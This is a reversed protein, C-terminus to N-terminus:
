QKNKNRIYEEYRKQMLIQRNRYALIGYNILDKAADPKKKINQLLDEERQKTFARAKDVMSSLNKERLLTNGYPEIFNIIDRNGFPNATHQLFLARCQQRIYYNMVNEWRYKCFFYKASGHNYEYMAFSKDVFPYIQIIEQIKSKLHRYDSIRPNNLLITYAQEIIFRGLLEYNNITKFIM